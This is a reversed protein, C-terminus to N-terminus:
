GKAGKQEIGEDWEWLGLMGKAPIPQALLAVNALEWAFRGDSYDGFAKEKESLSGRVDEVRHVAVLNATAIVAGIPLTEPGKRVSGLVTCYHEEFCVDKAWGPFGKAAHIALPGRYRTSWSRTEYRKAEIAVLTAYPQTLTLAKM